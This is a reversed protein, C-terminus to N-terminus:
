FLFHVQQQCGDAKRRSEFSNEDNEIFQEGVSCRRALTHRRRSHAVIHRRDIFSQSVYEFKLPESLDSLNHCLTNNFKDSTILVISAFM